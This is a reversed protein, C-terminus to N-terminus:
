EKRKPVLNLLSFGAKKVAKEEINEESVAVENVNESGNKQKNGMFQRGAKQECNDTARSKRGEQRPKTQMDVSKEPVVYTHRGELVVQFKTEENILDRITKYGFESEDFGSYKLQLQSKIGGLEAHKGNKEEQQVIEHIFTKIEGLKERDTQRNERKSAERSGLSNKVESSKTKDEAELTKGEKTENGWVAKKTGVKLSGGGLSAKKIAKNDKKVANQKKGKSLNEQKGEKKGKKSHEGNDKSESKKASSSKDKEAKVQKKDKKKELKKDTKKEADASKERSVTEEALEDFDLYQDCVKELRKSADAKGIGIVEIGDERIRKVLGTFDGDSTVICLTDINKQYLLDMADIVLAIDSSNKGASTTLQQKQEMEYEIAVSNWGKVSANNIFDGYIRACIIDGRKELYDVIRKAYRASTNEADILLVIKRDRM